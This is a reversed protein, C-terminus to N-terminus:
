IYYRDATYVFPAYPPKARVRYGKIYFEDYWRDIIPLTFISNGLNDYYDNGVAKFTIAGSYDKIVSPNFTMTITYTDNPNLLIPTPFTTPGTFGDSYTIASLSIPVKGYPNGITVTFNNDFSTALKYRPSIEYIEYGYYMYYPDPWDLLLSNVNNIIPDSTAVVYIGESPIPEIPIAKLYFPCYKTSDYQVSCEFGSPIYYQPTPHVYNDSGYIDTGQIMAQAPQIITPGYIINPTNFPAFKINCVGVSYPEILTQLTDVELFTPHMFGLPTTTSFQFEDPIDVDNIIMNNPTNNTINISTFIQTLTKYIEPSEYATILSIQNDIQMELTSGYINFTTPNNTTNAYIYGIGDYNIAGIVPIFAIVGTVTTHKTILLNSINPYVVDDFWGYHYYTNYKFVKETYNPLVTYCTPLEIRDIQVNFNTDNIIAIKRTSLGNYNTSGIIISVLSGYPGLGQTSPYTYTLPVIETNLRVVGFNLNNNNNPDKITINIHEIGIGDVTLTNPSVDANSIITITGTYTQAFIPTFTITVSQVGGALINGSTFNSVFGDSCVINSVNITRDGINTLTFTQQISSNISTTGFSITSKNLILLDAQNGTAYTNLTLPIDADSSISIIGDHTGPITPTYNVSIDVSEHATLTGSYSGSYYAYPYTISYINCPYESTNSITLTRTETNTIFVSGFDLDSGDNGISELTLLKRASGTAVLSIPNNEANSSITIISTFYGPDIPSFTISIPINNSSYGLLLENTHPLVSYLVNSSTVNLVTLTSTGTNYATIVKTQTDGTIIMSFTLNGSVTMYKTNPNYPTCYDTPQIDIGDIYCNEM